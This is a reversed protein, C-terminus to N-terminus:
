IKNGMLEPNQNCSLMAGFCSQMNFISHKVLSLPTIKDVRNYFINIAKISLNAIYYWKATQICVSSVMAITGIGTFCSLGMGIFSLTCCFTNILNEHFVNNLNNQMRKEENIEMATLAKEQEDVQIGSNKMLNNINSSEQEKFKAKNVKYRLQMEKICQNKKEQLLVDDTNIKLQKEIYAVEAAKDEFWGTLTCQNWARYSRELAILLDIGVAFAFTPSAYTATDKLTGFGMVSAGVTLLLARYKNAQQHHDKKTLLYYIIFISCIADIENWLLALLIDSVGHQHFYNKWVENNQGEVGPIYTLQPIYTATAFGAEKIHNFCNNENVKNQDSM